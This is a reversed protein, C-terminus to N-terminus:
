VDHNTGSLGHFCSSLTKQLRPPLLAASTMTVDDPHCLNSCETQFIHISLPCPYPAILSLYISTYSGVNKVNYLGLKEYLVIESCTELIHHTRTSSVGFFYTHMSVFAPNIHTHTHQQHMSNIWLANCLPFPPATLLQLFCFLICNCTTTIFFSCFWLISTCCHTQLVPDLM